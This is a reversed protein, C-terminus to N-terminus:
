FRPFLEGGGWDKGHRQWQNNKLPNLPHHLYNSLKRRASYNESLIRGWYSELLGIYVHNTSFSYTFHLEFISCLGRFNSAKLILYMSKSTIKLNVALKSKWNGNANRHKWSENLRLFKKSRKEFILFHYFIPILYFLGCIRFKQPM